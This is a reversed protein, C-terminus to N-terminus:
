KIVLQSLGFIAVPAMIVPGGAVSLAVASTAIITNATKDSVNITTSFHYPQFKKEHSLMSEQASLKATDLKLFNLEFNSIKKISLEERLSFTEQDSRVWNLDGEIRISKGVLSKLRKFESQNKVQIFHSVAQNDKLYIVSFANLSKSYFINGIINVKEGANVSSIFIVFLLLALHKM